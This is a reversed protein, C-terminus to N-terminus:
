SRAHTGGAVLRPLPQELRGGTDEGLVPHAGGRDLLDGGGGAEGAAGEVRVELPLLLQGDGHEVVVEGAALGVVPGQQSPVGIRGPEDVCQAGVDAALVVWEVVVRQQLDLEHQVHGARRLEARHQTLVQAGHAGEEALDGGGGRRAPPTSRPTSAAPRPMM